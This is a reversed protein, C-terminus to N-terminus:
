SGGREFEDRSMPVMGQVPNPWNVEDSTNYTQPINRLTHKYDNIEEIATTLAAQNEGALRRMALGTALGDSYQLLYNRYARIKVWEESEIVDSSVILEQQDEDWRWLNRPSDLPLDALTVDPLRTATDLIGDNATNYAEIAVDIDDQSMENTECPGVIYEIMNDALKWLYVPTDPYTPEEVPVDPGLPSGHDEIFEPSSM